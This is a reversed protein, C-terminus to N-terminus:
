RKNKGVRFRGGMKFFMKREEGGKKGGENQSL